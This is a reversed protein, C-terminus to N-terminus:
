KQGTSYTRQFTQHKTDRKGHSHLRESDAMQIWKGMWLKGAINKIETEYRM